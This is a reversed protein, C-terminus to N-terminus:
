VYNVHVKWNLNEDIFVGLIKMSEVRSIYVQGIKIRINNLLKVQSPKGILMFKTKDLNLKINNTVLWNMVSALDDELSKIISDIEKPKGQIILNSDDAFM